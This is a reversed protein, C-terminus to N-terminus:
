VPQNTEKLKEIEDLFSSFTEIKDGINDDSIMYSDQIIETSSTKIASYEINIPPDNFPDVDKIICPIYDDKVGPLNLTLDKDYRWTPLANYKVYVMEGINYNCSPFSGQLGLVLQKLGASPARSLHEVILNALKEPESHLLKVKLMDIINKKSYNVTIQSMTIYIKENNYKYQQIKISLNKSFGNSISM